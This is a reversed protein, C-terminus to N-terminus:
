MHIITQTGASSCANRKKKRRKKAECWQTRLMKHRENGRACVRVLAFVCIYFIADYPSTRANVNVRAVRKQARARNEGNALPLALARITVRARLRKERERKKKCARLIRIPILVVSSFSEFAVPVRSRPPLRHNHIQFHCRLYPKIKANTENVDIHVVHNKKERQL